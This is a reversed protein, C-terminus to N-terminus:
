AHRGHGGGSLYRPPRINAPSRSCYAYVKEGFVYGAVLVDEDQMDDDRAYISVGGIEGIYGEPHIKVAVSPPVVIYRGERPVNNADMTRNLQALVDVVEWWKDRM